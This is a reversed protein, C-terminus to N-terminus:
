LTTHPEELEAEALRRWAVMAPLAWIADAYAECAADTPIAYTRFRSVVPAFMADAISFRGFLFPGRAGYRARVDNWLARIRAVDAAAEPSPARPTHALLNMPHERRLTAFGAHMEAAVARAVARAGVDDPWLKAAPFREAVYECIAISEWIVIGDGGELPVHLAPVKGTPSSRALEARTGPRDLRIRVTEFPAGAITLALWPRLSWSSLNYDGVYLKV